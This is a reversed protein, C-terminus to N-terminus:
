RRSTRRAAAALLVPLFAGLLVVPTTVVRRASHDLYYHLSPRGVWYAWVVSAVVLCALASVFVPTRRDGGRVALVVAVAAAPVIVLWASPEVAHWVLSGAGTPIRGLRGALYSPDVVKAYPIEGNSTDVGNAHLWLQWPIATAVAAVGAAITQGRRGRGAAVLVVLFLAAVFPGGERKTALVAAAFLVTLVLMQPRGEALWRWACMSALAFFVALPADALGAGAQYVLSPAVAILLVSAWAAAPPVRDALLRPLALLLAVVLLTGQVHIVQTDVAGMFRFGIAELAPILLPYDLHVQHYPVGAFVRADLGDLLAIARAKMTWMAWADQEALPRFAADALYMVAMLGVAAQLALVARGAARPPPAPLVQGDWRPRLGTAALLACGAVVQWRALGLGAILAWEAAIGCAAVGVLYAVALASLLERPARWLGLARSIGAGAALYCLNALALGLVHVTM